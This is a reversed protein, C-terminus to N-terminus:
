VHGPAEDNSDHIVRDDGSGSVERVKFRALKRYSCHTKAERVAGSDSAEIIRFSESPLIDDSMTYCDAMYHTMRGGHKGGLM